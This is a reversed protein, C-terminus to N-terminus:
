RKIKALAKYYEEVLKKYSAPVANDDAYFYKNNELARSLDRSLDLEVQHLLDIAQKLSAIGEASDYRRSDTIGQLEQLVQGVDQEESSNRDLMRRLEQADLTRQQLEAQQQRLAEQNFGGAPPRADGAAATANGSPPVGTLSRGGRAEGQAQLSQQGQRQGQGQQQGQQGQGAQQAQEGQQGRQGQQGAQQQGQQGRGSNQLRQQMTQLGEALQQTRNLADQLRSEQTQSLSSRASELQRNVDQLGQQIFDEQRM